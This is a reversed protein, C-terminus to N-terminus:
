THDLLYELAEEPSDFGRCAADWQAALPPLLHLTITVAGPYPDMGEYEGGNGDEDIWEALAALDDHNYGTGGLDNMEGLLGALLDTDYTALDSTRNDALLIRRGTEDDVDILWVDTDAPWNEPYEHHLKRLAQATHHGALIENPRGTRTGKNVILPRYQGSAQLSARIQDVDGQRPNEPHPNLEALPLRHHSM